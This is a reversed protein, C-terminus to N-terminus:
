PTEVAVNTVRVRCLTVKIRVNGKKNQHANIAFVFM